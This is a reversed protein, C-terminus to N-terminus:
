GDWAVPDREGSAWTEVESSAQKGWGAKLLRRQFKRAGLSLEVWCIM